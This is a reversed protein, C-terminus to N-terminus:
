QQYLKTCVTSSRYGNCATSNNTLPDFFGHLSSVHWCCLCLSKCHAKSTACNNISQNNNFFSLSKKIGYKIGIKLLDELNTGKEGIYKLIADRVADITKDCFNPCNNQTIGLYPKVVSPLLARLAQSANTVILRTDINEVEFIERSSAYLHTSYSQISTDTNFPTHLDLFTFVRDPQADDTRFAMFAPRRGGQISNVVNAWKTGTKPFYINAGAQNKLVKGCIPNGNPNNQYRAPRFNGAEHWIYSVSEDGVCISHFHWQNAHYQLNTLQAMIANPITQYNQNGVELLACIDINYSQMIGAIFRANTTKKQINWSMFRVTIAM